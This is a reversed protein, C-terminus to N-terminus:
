HTEFGSGFMTYNVLYFFIIEIVKPLKTVNINNQKNM